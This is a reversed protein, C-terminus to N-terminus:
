SRAHHHVFKSKPRHERITNVTSSMVFTGKQSANQTRMMCSFTTRRNRWFVIDARNPNHGTRKALAQHKHITGLDGGGPSVPENVSSHPSPVTNTSQDKPQNTRLSFRTTWRPLKETCECPGRGSSVCLRTEYEWSFVM